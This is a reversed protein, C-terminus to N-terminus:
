FTLSIFRFISNPNGYNQNDYQINSGGRQLGLGQPLTGSYTNANAQNLSPFGMGMNGYNYDQNYYNPNM